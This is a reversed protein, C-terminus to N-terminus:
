DFDYSLPGNNEVDLKTRLAPYSVFEPYQWTVTSMWANAKFMRLCQINKHPYDWFKKKQSKKIKRDRGMPYFVSVANYRDQVHFKRHGVKFQGRIKIDSLDGPGYV